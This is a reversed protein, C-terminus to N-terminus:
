AMLGLAAKVARGRATKAETNAVRDLMAALTTELDCRNKAEREPWEDGWVEALRPNVPEALRDRAWQIVIQADILAADEHVVPAALECIEPVIAAADRLVSVAVEISWDPDDAFAEEIRLLATEGTWAGHENRVWFHAKIALAVAAGSVEFIRDEIKTLLDGAPINGAASQRDYERAAAIWQRFLSLALTDGDSATVAGIVPAAGTAVGALASGGALAGAAGLINRRSLKREM